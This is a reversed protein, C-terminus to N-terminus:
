QPAMQSPIAGSAPSLPAIGNYLVRFSVLEPCLTEVYKVRHDPWLILHYHTNGSFWKDEEAIAGSLCCGHSLLTNSSLTSSKDNCIVFQRSSMFLESVGVVFAHVDGVQTLADLSVWRVYPRVIERGWSFMAHFSSRMNGWDEFHTLKFQERGIESSSCTWAETSHHGM